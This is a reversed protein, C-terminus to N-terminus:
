STIRARPMYASSCEDVGQVGARRFIRPLYTQHHTQQQTFQQAEFFVMVFVDGFM